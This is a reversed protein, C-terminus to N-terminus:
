KSPFISINWWHGGGRVGCKKSFFICTNQSFFGWQMKEIIPWHNEHFKPEQKWVIYTNLIVTPLNCARSQLGRSKKKKLPIHECWDFWYLFFSTNCIILQSFCCFLDGENHSLVHPVEQFMKLFKFKLAEGKLTLTRFLIAIVWDPLEFMNWFCSKLFFNRLDMEITFNKDFKSIEPLICSYILLSFICHVYYM